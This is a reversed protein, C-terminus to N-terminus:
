VSGQYFLGPTMLLSSQWNQKVMPGVSMQSLQPLQFVEKFSEQCYFHVHPFCELRNIKPTGSSPVNPKISWSSLYSVELDLQLYSLPILIFFLIKMEWMFWFICWALPKLRRRSETNVSPSQLKDGEVHTGNPQHFNTFLLLDNKKKDEGEGRREREGKGRSVWEGTCSSGRKKGGEWQM